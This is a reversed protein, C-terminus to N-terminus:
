LNNTIEPWAPNCTITIFLDPKGYKAVITMADQYHQQIKGLSNRHFSPLVIPRDHRVDANDNQANLHQQRRQLHDM